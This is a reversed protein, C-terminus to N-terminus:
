KPIHRKMFVDIANNWYDIQYKRKSNLTTKASNYQTLGRKYADVAKNYREVEDNTVFMRDKSNYITSIENYELKTKEFSVIVPIKKEAEEKYFLM